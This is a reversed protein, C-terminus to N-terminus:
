PLMCLLLLFNPGLRVNQTKCSKSLTLKLVSVVYEMGTFCQGLTACVAAEFSGQVKKYHRIQRIVDFVVKKLAQM